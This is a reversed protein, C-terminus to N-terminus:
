RLKGKKGVPSNCKPTSDATQNMGAIAVPPLNVPIVTITQNATALNGSSDVAEWQVITDGVPFIAPANNTIAVLFIDTATATGIDVTGDLSVVEMSAPAALLPPTTDVVHIVQSATGVNGASDQASWIVFHSGLPFPGTKDPTATVPGDVDDLATATGLSVPTQIGTAEVVRSTPPTVVPPTIDQTPPPVDPPPIDQQGSVVTVTRNVQSSNQSSDSVQYIVNYTGPVATNVNGTRIINATLDGDVLDIATAGQEVYPANIALNVVSPGILNLIPPTTDEVTVTSIVDGFIGDSDIASWQISYTGLPLEEPIPEAGYYITVWAPTKIFNAGFYQVLEGNQNYSTEIVNGYQDYVTPPEVSQATPTLPGTAEIVQTSGFDFVFYPLQSYVNCNGTLARVATGENGSSDQVSYTIEVTSWSWSAPHDVAIIEATLDGDVTDFATAGLDVYGSWECYPIITTPGIVVVDPPTTDQVTVIQKATVRTGHNDTASWTVTTDGLPYPGYNDATVTLSNGSGDVAAASGIDVPTLRATAEIVIDEPPTISTVATTATVEISVTAVRSNSYGDNAVWTFIDAGVYNMEPMYSLDPAQGSLTGHAPNAIIQYTFTTQEIDTVSLAIGVSNNQETTVSQDSVLPADNVPTVTISILAEASATGDSASFALQDPGFYDPDPTYSLNPATGSLTGHTPQSTVQYTLPDGDIDTASLVIGTSTDEDLTISQPTAVPADNVPNVTISIVGEDFATGDSVRFTLQDPGFYNLNPTYSLNPPTGNLTGNVPLTVLHYSLNGGDVDTGTLTIGASTDEELSIERSMAVPTSNVVEVTFRQIAVSKGNDDKGSAHKYSEAKVIFTHFGIDSDTTSWALLGSEKDISATAPLILLTFAPDDNYNLVSQYQLTTGAYIQQPPVSTFVLSIQQKDKNKGKQEHEYRDSKGTRSNRERGDREAHGRERDDSRRQDRSGDQSGPNKHERRDENEIVDRSEQEHSSSPHESNSAHTQLTFLLTFLLLTFRGQRM